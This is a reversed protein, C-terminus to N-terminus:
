KPREFVWEWGFINGYEDAIRLYCTEAIKNANRAGLQQQNVARALGQLQRGCCRPLRPGLDRSARGVHHHLLVALPDHHRAELREAPHVDEM